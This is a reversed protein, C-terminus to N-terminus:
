KDGRKIFEYDQFKLNFSYYNVDNNKFGYNTWFKNGVENDKFAVFEVQSVGEDQLKKLITNVMLHGIGQNRYEKSVCFHYIGATRGDSGVLASAIIVENLTVVCSLGKNRDLFKKIYQESDDISRIRFGEITNWLRYVQSYDDISMERIKYTKSM